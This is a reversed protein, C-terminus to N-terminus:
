RRSSCTMMVIPMRRYYAGPSIRNQLVLDCSFRGVDLPWDPFRLSNWLSRASRWWTEGYSSAQLGNGRTGVSRTPIGDPVSQTRQRLARPVRVVRLTSSPMGVRLTPVLPVGSVAPLYPLDRHLDALLRRKKPASDRPTDPNGAHGAHFPTRIPPCPRWQQSCTQKSGIVASRDRRTHGTVLRHVSNHSRFLSRDGAEERPAEQQGGEELSRVVGRGPSGGAVRAAREATGRGISRPWWTRRM